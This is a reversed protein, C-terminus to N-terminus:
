KVSFHLIHPNPLYKVGELIPLFHGEESEFDHELPLYKQCFYFFLCTSFLYFFFLLARIHVQHIYIIKYM